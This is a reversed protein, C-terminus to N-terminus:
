KKLDSLKYINLCDKKNENKNNDEFIKVFINNLNFPSIEINLDRYRGTTKLDKNYKLSPTSTIGLFIPNSKKLKELSFLINENELHIFVDRVLVIDFGHPIKNEILDFQQFSIKNNSYRKINNNILDQVIDLGLYNDYNSYKNLVLNMWLFDGCGIDLIKKINNKKFFILLDKSLNATSKIDSGWGSISENIKLQHYDRWHSSKYIHSFISKRIFQRSFFFDSIKSIFFKRLWYSKNFYRLFNKM